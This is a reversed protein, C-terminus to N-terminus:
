RDLIDKVTKEIKEGANKLSDNVNVVVGGEREVQITCEIAIAAIGAIITLYPALIVGIAAANVPINLIVENNKKISLKTINGEKLLEKILKLIEKGKVTYEEKKESHTNKNDQEQSEEEMLAINIPEAHKERIYRLAVEYDGNSQDLAELAEATTCNTAEILKNAIETITSM